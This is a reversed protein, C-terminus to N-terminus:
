LGSGFILSILDSESVNASRIYIKDFEVSQGYAKSGALHRVAPSIVGEVIGEIAGLEMSILLDIKSQITFFKIPNTLNVTLVTGLATVSVGSLVKPWIRDAVEYNNDRDALSSM